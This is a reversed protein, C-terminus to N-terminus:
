NSSRSPLSSTTRSQSDGTTFQEGFRRADRDFQSQVVGGGRHLSEELEKTTLEQLSGNQLARRARRKAKIQSVLEAGDHYASIIAGICAVVAVLELGSM